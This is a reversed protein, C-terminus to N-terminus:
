ETIKKRYILKEIGKLGPESVEHHVLIGLGVASIYIGDRNFFLLTALGIIVLLLGYFSHHLHFNTRELNPVPLKLIRQFFFSVPFVLFGVVFTLVLLYGSNM